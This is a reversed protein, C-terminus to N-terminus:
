YKCIALTYRLLIIKNKYNKLLHRNTGTYYVCARRIYAILKINIIRSHFMWILPCYNFRSNFFSSVLKKKKSLNMYPMVRSLANVKRSAKSITDNLHENFNQMLKLKRTIKWNKMCRKMRNKIETDKIRITVEDKKNVLLHCKSINTKVQNDSFWQILM